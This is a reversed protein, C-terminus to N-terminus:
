GEELCSLKIIKKGLVMYFIKDLLPLPELALIQSKVQSYLDGNLEMLFKHLKEEEMM